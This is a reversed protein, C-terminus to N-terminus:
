SSYSKKKKLKLLSIDMLPWVSVQRHETKEQTNQLKRWEQRNRRDTRNNSTDRVKRSNALKILEALRIEDSVNNVVTYKRNYDKAGRALKRGRNGTAIGGAELAM